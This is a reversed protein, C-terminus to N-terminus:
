SLYEQLYEYNPTLQGRYTIVADKLERPLSLSSFDVQFDAKALSPIFQLLTESFSTSSERPLECPLNDVAMVVPGDGKVGPHAADDKVVYTFSPEGPNTCHLTFQIAGQVDCSIDGVVRLRRNPDNWHTKIFDKTLLRPYDSSWYICNMLVTLHPIHKEFVGRYAKSGEQYYHNLDFESNSDIPEVMDEERFVCKYLVHPDPRLNPLDEPKVAKHPLVDFVEQAGRSVNGYGAFGVVFPLLQQPLGQEQIRQGLKAFEEKLGELGSIELTPKLDIFPNPSLGEWDLRAGLVRMTDSMGAMGAWNGFFILRRGNEDVVCEYDILTANSDMIKKLMPMNYKQGKITHSFFMYVIDEEFFDNPMEKIGLIVPTNSGKLPLVQATASQYEEEDFARQESPEVVFEIGYEKNLKKVHEPIVAVRTEFLKEEKRLGIKNM